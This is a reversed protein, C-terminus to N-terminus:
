ALEMGLASGVLEALRELTNMTNAIEILALIIVAAAMGPHREALALPLDRVKKPAARALALLALLFGVGIAAGAIVDIPWHLGTIVRSGATGIVAWTLAIAGAGRAALFVGFALTVFLAAHDSPFSNFDNPAINGATLNERRTAADGTAPARYDIRPLARLTGDGALLYVQESRVLPRPNFGDTSVAKMLPALLFVSLLTFALIRRRRDHAEAAAATWWAYAFCAVIPGAKAVPSDVMLALLADATFSRDTLSNAWAFTMENWGPM